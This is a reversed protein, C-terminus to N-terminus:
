GPTKEIDQHTIKDDARIQSMTGALFENFDTTAGRIDIYIPQGNHTSRCFYYVGNKGQIEFAEYGFKKHLALSFLQCSGQLFDHAGDYPCPYEHAGNDEIGEFKTLELCQKMSDYSLNEAKNYYGTHFHINSTTM